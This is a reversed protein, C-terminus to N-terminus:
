HPATKRLTHKLARPITRHDFVTREIAVYFRGRGLRSRGLIQAPCTEISDTSGGTYHSRSSIEPHWRVVQATESVFYRAEGSQVARRGSIQRRVPAALIERPRMDLKVACLKM